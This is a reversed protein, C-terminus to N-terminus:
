QLKPPKEKGYMSLDWANWFLETCTNPHFLHLPFITHSESMELCNPYESIYVLELDSGQNLWASLSLQKQILMEKHQRSSIYIGAPGPLCWKSPVLNLVSMTWLLKQESSYGVNWSLYNQFLFVVPLLSPWSM